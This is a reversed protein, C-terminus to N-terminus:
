TTGGLSAPRHEADLAVGLEAAVDLLADMDDAETRFNVICSRLTFRDGLIANSCYVRGDLQIATMLHHNLDSLYEEAADDDRGALDPPVYRFCTISLGVPACLEFDPREQVREGLYRALAADHSIRRAYAARGHALLSVWVKLAWFGRSFNPGHRGLDLGHGTEEKDQVVYSAEVDFSERLHALDHVVVCGGSHPTYLWKHPDFAISHAREIGAFLPRLDDALMAPGGYAADVHFWLGEEACVDAITDLPDVAGTSVTGASGVVAFPRVGADRDRAIQARLEDVRMRYGDDVPVHRVNKWGIGLMDAARDSVVHTETSLYLGLPPGAGVGDNRVDWGARHDRATKLGIFNAMAGGSTLEGGATDPMGFVERAFWRTLHLEIETASPSLQWGGANMNLGAALLEAPAGPVTGAGSIYAMFRPHGPYGSWDFVVRRLYAFLEDDTMPEDPIPIAVGERVQEATWRGSVPLTPLRELLEQWLDVTRDAFERARKADWALDRVPEPREAM